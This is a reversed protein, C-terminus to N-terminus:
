LFCYFLLRVKATRPVATLSRKLEPIAVEVGGERDGHKLIPSISTLGRGGDGVRLDLTGLDQSAPSPQPPPPASPEETDQNNAAEPYDERLASPRYFKQSPCLELGYGVASVAPVPNGTALGLGAAISCDTGGAPVGGDGAGEPPSPTSPIPVARIVTLVQTEESFLYRTPYDNNNPYM